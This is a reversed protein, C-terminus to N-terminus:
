IRINDILRAKDFQAALAILTNGPIIEDLPELADLSVIEVYDLRAHTDREIKEAIARRLIEASREGSEFNARAEQLAAYLAPAERREEASLNANRSSMALGDEDRVTEVGIMKIPLNLDEVMRRLIIFQQADKWGFLAVDPQIINFLKLVVTAVGRFHGPRLRGCLGDSLKDVEVHTRFNEPYMIQASPCFLANVEETRLLAGDAALSRPYREFDEKPGFQLPNVFVSVVVADAENKARRILTLHGEHLAGMTPVLAVRRGAMKWVGVCERVEEQTRLFEM